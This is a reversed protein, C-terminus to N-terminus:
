SAGSLSLTADPPTVSVTFSGLTAEIPVDGHLPTLVLSVTPNTGAPVDITVSGNHTQVDGADFARITITRDSGAPITITGTAVGGSIPINFILPTAIDPATVEVVVLAVSTASVNATVVLSAEGGGRPETGSSCSALVLLTAFATIPSSRRVPVM